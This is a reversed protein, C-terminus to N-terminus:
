LQGYKKSIDKKIKNGITTKGAGISSKDLIFYKKKNIKHM